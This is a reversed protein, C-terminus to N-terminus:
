LEAKLETIEDGTGDSDYAKDAIHLTPQTIM